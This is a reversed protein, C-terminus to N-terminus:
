ERDSWDMKQGCVGCFINEKLIIKKHIAISRIYSNCIPCYYAGISSYKCSDIIPKKPIQKELANIAMELAPVDVDTVYCVAEKSETCEDLIDKLNKIAERETM